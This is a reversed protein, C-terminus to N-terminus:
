SAIGHENDLLSVNLCLGVFEVGFGNALDLEFAPNKGLGFAIPIGKDRSESNQEDMQLGDPGAYQFDLPL